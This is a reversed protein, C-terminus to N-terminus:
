EPMSSTETEPNKVPKCPFIMPCVLTYILDLRFRLDRIHIQNKKPVYPNKYSSSNLFFQTPLKIEIINGLDSQLNILFHERM